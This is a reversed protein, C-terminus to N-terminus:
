TPRLSFTQYCRQSAALPPLSCLTDFAAFQVSPELAHFLPWERYSCLKLEVGAFRVKL